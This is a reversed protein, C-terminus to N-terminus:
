PRRERRGQQGPILSRVVASTVPYEAGASRAVGNHYRSAIVQVWGMSAALTRIDNFAAVVGAAMASTFKGELLIAETGGAIYSRGRGSRGRTATYLTVVLADQVPLRQEALLGAIPTVTPVAVPATDSRMDYATVKRFSWDNATYSDLDNAYSDFVAAALDSMQTETFASRAFWFSNSWQLTSDGTEIIVQCSNPVPIFAMANDGKAGTKTAPM